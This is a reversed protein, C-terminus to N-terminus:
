KTFFPIEYLTPYKIIIINVIEGEVIVIKFVIHFFYFFYLVIHMKM